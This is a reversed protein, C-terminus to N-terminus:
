NGDDDDGDDDEDGDDEDEYHHDDHVDPQTESTVYSSIMNPRGGCGSYGRSKIVDFKQLTMMIMMMLIM